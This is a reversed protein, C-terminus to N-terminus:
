IMNNIQIDIAEAEPSNKRMMPMASQTRTRKHFPVYKANKRDALVPEIKGDEPEPQKRIAALPTLVPKNKPLPKPEPKEENVEVKRIESKRILPTYPNKTTERKPTVM